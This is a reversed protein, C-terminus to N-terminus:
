VNKYINCVLQNFFQLKSIKNFIKYACLKAIHFSYCNNKCIQLLIDKKEHNKYM